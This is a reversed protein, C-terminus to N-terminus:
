PSFGRDPVFIWSSVTKGSRFVVSAKSPSPTMFADAGAPCRDNEGERHPCRGPNNMETKRVRARRKPQRRKMAAKIESTSGTKLAAFFFVPAGRNQERERPNENVLLRRAEDRFLRNDVCVRRGLATAICNFVMKGAQKRGAHAFKRAETAALKRTM